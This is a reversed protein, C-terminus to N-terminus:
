NDRVSTAYVLDTGGDGGARRLERGARRKMWGRRQSISKM